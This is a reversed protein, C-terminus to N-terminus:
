LIKKLGNKIKYKFINFNFNKNHRCIMYFFDNKKRIDGPITNYKFNNQWAVFNFSLQDRKSYNKVYFWWQEMVKILLPDNHKRILVGGSILGNNEPYNSSKIINIQQEIIAPDDKFRNEKVALKIIANHEQFICNRPDMITQNHDFCAMTIDNTLYKEILISCNKQSIFNGDIYISYDYDPFQLHPLIKYYRNNRTNDDNFPPETVKIVKWSKSQLPRDTFCIYDVNKFRPQEILKNYGGFIATYIVTKNM